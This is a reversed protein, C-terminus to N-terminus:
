RKTKKLSKIEAKRAKKEIKAQYKDGPERIKEKSKVDSEVKPDDEAVNKRDRFRAILFDAFKKGFQAIFGTILITVIWKVITPISPSTFFDKIFM